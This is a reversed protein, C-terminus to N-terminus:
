RNVLASPIAHFAAVQTVAPKNTARATLFAQYPQLNATLEAALEGDLDLIGLGGDAIEDLRAEHAARVADIAKQVRHAAYDAFKVMSRPYTVVDEWPAAVTRFGAYFLVRGTAKIRQWNRFLFRLETTCISMKKFHIDRAHAGVGVTITKDFLDKNAVALMDMDDLIYHIFAPLGIAYDIGFKCSRRIALEKAAAALVRAPSTALLTDQGKKLAAFLRPSTSVTGRVTSPAYKASANLATAYASKKPTASTPATVAVTGGHVTFNGSGLTTNYANIAAYRDEKYSHPNIGDGYLRKLYRSIQPGIGYLMDGRGLNWTDRIDAM